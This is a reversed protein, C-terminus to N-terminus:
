HHIWKGIYKSCIICSKQKTRLKKKERRSEFYKMRSFFTDSFTNFNSFKYDIRCVLQFWVVPNDTSFKDDACWVCFFDVKRM